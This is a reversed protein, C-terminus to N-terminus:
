KNKQMMGQLRDLNARVQEYAPNIRLAEQFHDRAEAYRGQRALTMGLNNHAVAFNPNIEVARQFHQAAEPLRDARKLAAGLNNEAEAQKPDAIVAQQLREIAEPVRNVRLLIAGLNSLAKANDPRYRLAETYQAIAEENRGLDAYVNGLNDLAHFYDPKIRAAEQYHALAEEKNGQNYLLLGVNYHALYNDKTVALARGFLSASDAWYGVQLRTVPFLSALALASVCIGGLRIPRSKAEWAALAWAIAIFIGVLPVYTYRDAREQVGVQVFGIVPVLTGLYWFWGFALYPARKFLRIVGATVAALLLAAGAMPWSLLGIHHHPYFVALRSPWFVKGLYTAYAVTANAIRGSLPFNEVDQVAGAGRQIVFTIVCSVASLAFFPAKELLVNKIAGSAKELPLTIRRLPWFDLLLLTFPLTVLMPKTMLGLSFSALSLAYWRRKRGRVFKVWAFFTLLWFLTSLVDKREAVWAVSEVHLPHIAFLAAALASPWLAKTMRVLLLFLLMVNLVHLILSTRHHRGADLGYLQVDLMHSLWTVPHWNASYASTFAWEISEANLGSRVHENEMVYPGDDYQVFGNSLVGTFAAITLVVLAACLAAVRYLRHGPPISPPPFPPAAQRHERTPKRPPGRRKDRAM